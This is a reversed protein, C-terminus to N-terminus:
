DNIEECKKLNYSTLQDTVKKEVFCNENIYNYISLNNVPKITYIVKVNNNKITNILLNRYSKFYKNKIRPYDTGDFIHWRTTSFIKEELLISFFSYNTMVMKNRDDNELYTKIENIQNIEKKPNNKYNPTIWKLGSLKNDIEKGYSSNKFNVHELEHFKRDENFRLHYKVTVFFCFLILLISIIKKNVNLNIQFFAVLIPVLFFIFTQNRTLLQHFILSFTLGLLIMFYFFFNEKYYNKKLFLKKLNLYILLGLSLYIFKFHGITNNFTVEFNSFRNLGISQPYFIYQELFSSLNIGQFKGFILLLFIFLTTSLALYQFHKYKKKIISYFILILITSIIIYSAPVQKSLFSFGFFIPLLIWYYKQEDKIALIFFYTAILSFMASHHDVFPTGSSPYALISFFVSYVLSYFINLKFSRLFLFTAISVLGNIISAHFVYVQWNIGFLYFFLAQLYDILPGSVVWYDRFPYEGLLVRFGTDFHSFSDAPFIGRNGYYQNILVSFIFLLVIFLNEKNFINNLKM